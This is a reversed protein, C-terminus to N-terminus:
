KECRYPIQLIEFSERKKQMVFIKSCNKKIWCKIFISKKSMASNNGLTSVEVKYHKVQSDLFSNLTCGSHDQLLILHITRKNRINQTKHRCNLALYHCLQIDGLIKIGKLWLFFLLKALYSFHPEREITPYRTEIMGHVNFFSSSQSLVLM